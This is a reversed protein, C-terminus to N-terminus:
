RKLFTMSMELEETFEGLVANELMAQIGKRVSKFAHHIPCPHTV